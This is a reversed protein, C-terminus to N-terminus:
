DIAEAVTMLNRFYKEEAIGEKEKIMMAAKEILEKGKESRLFARPASALKNYFIQTLTQM